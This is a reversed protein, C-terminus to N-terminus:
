EMREELKCAQFKNGGACRGCDAKWKEFGEPKIPLNM